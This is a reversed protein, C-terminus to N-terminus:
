TRNEDTNTGRHTRGIASILIVADPASKTSHKRLRANRIINEQQVGDFRIQFKQM